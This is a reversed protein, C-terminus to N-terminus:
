NSCRYQPTSLCFLKLNGPEVTKKKPIPIVEEREFWNGKICAGIQSFSKRRASKKKGGLTKSQKGAGHM